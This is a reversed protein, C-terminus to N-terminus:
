TLLQSSTIEKIGTVRERKVEERLHGVERTSLNHWMKPKHHSPYPPLAVVVVVVVM